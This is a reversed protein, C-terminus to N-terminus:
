RNRMLAGPHEDDSQDFAGCGSLPCNPFFSSRIDGTLSKPSNYGNWPPHESRLVLMAAPRTCRLGSATCGGCLVHYRRTFMPPDEVESSDLWFYGFNFSASTWVGASILGQCQHKSESGKLTRKPVASTM